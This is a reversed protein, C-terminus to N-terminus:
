SQSDDMERDKSNQLSSGEKSEEESYKDDSSPQPISLSPTSPMPSEAAQMM